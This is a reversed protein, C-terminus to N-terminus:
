ESVYPFAVSEEHRSEYTLTFIEFISVNDDWEIVCKVSPDIALVGASFSVYAPLKAFLLYTENASASKFLLNGQAWPLTAAAETAVLVADDVVLEVAMEAVEPTTCAPNDSLTILTSVVLSLVEWGGSGFYVKDNPFGTVEAAVGTVKKNEAM